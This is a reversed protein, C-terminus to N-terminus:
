NEASFEILRDHNPVVNSDNDNGDITVLHLQPNIRRPRNGDM